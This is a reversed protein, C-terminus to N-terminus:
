ALVGQSFRAVCEARRLKGSTTRPLTGAKVLEVRDATVGLAEALHGRVKRAVDFAEDRRLEVVVVLQEGRQGDALVSFAAVGNPPTDVVEAVEREIDAPHLKRGAKIVLEKDRGTVHLQGQAVVGRDGTKLWGGDLAQATAQPDGRYGSMLSPGKVVLEGEEHELALEGDARRVAVQTGELPTGVAPVWRGEFDLDADLEGPRAFCVGLTNEALGYVPLVAGRALGAPEFRRELADITQRLVPESGNLAARLRGLSLGEPPGGRRVLLEYGFNPAVTLTARETSLLELWRRPHLLVEAPRLVHVEFAAALSSLLVGVLGMDHFFPLWSVGVDDPGLSLARAMGLASSVAAHQSIEAGRPLTTSGSTFQVFAATRAQPNQVFPGRSPEAVVPLAVATGRPACLARARAVRLMAEAGKPLAPAAGPVVPWPLPVATAGLLQAGFFAGVFAPSNPQFVGVADGARVGAQFLAAAWGRALALAASFSLPERRPGAHFWLWPRHDRERAALLHALAAWEVPRQPGGDLVARPKLAVPRM